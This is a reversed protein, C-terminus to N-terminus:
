RKKRPRQEEQAKGTAAENKEAKSVGRVRVPVVIWDNPKLMEKSVWGIPAGKATTEVFAYDRGEHTIKSGQAPVAVALMAHQHADSSLLVSDVGISDLLMHLLLAKSDCDGKKRAAVLAPPLLGFPRGEPIEYPIAQVFTTMLEVADVTGLNADKIRKKFLAILPDLDAKSRDALDEFICQMQAGCGKPPVWSFKGGGRDRFNVREALETQAREVASQEGVALAYGVRYVPPELRADRWAYRTAQSEPTKDPYAAVGLEVGPTEPSPEGQDQETFLDSLDVLGCCCGSLWISLSALGLSKALAKM